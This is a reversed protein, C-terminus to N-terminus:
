RAAMAVGAFGGNGSPSTATQLAIAGGADEDTGHEDVEGLAGAEGRDALVVRREGRRLLPHDVVVVERQRPM